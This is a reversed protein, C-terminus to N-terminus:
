RSIHYYLHCNPFKWKFGGSICQGYENTGKSSNAFVMWFWYLSIAQFYGVSDLDHCRKTNQALIFWLLPLYLVGAIQAANGISMIETIVSSAIVFLLVSIGFETRRIRGDFSFFKKLM